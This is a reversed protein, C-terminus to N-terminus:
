RLQKFAKRLEETFLQPQEWAAFHGGKEVENFYILNQFARRVWTEPPLFAEEGFNTVAVPLTIKHTKWIASSLPSRGKNEWYLRSSSAGSNTLWYLTIDDLVDDITPSREPNAGFSWDMFGPHVLIWAALASPSDSEGYGITQPRSTLMTFYSRNGKKTSVILKNFVALEKVTLGAPPIGSILASDVEPPIVAPLNIHIGLLGEPAQLAMAECIPSGWDGGQAVYHTYGLRKMLVAWARAIHETEWGIGTPKGSFGYGPISPLVIDFADDPTGGYSTPDTLPGITKLLEIVSGPWGHTMILPMANPHRSRIHIFHIEVSDIETTFQPLANLKSELKRWDYQTGWYQLLNQLKELQVGQSQDTVTERDPWRTTHIRRRLDALEEEPINIRFPNIDSSFGNVKKVENIKLDSKNFLNINKNKSLLIFLSCSTCLAIILISFKFFTKM